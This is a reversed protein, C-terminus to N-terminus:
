NIPPTYQTPISYNTTLIVEYKYKDNKYTALLLFISLFM